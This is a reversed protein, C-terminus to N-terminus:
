GVVQILREDVSRTPQKALIKVGAKQGNGVDRKPARCYQPTNKFYTDFKGFCTHSRNTICEEYFMLM